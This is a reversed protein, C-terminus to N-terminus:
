YITSFTLASYKIGKSHSERKYARNFVYINNKTQQTM